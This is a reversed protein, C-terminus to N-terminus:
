KGDSCNVFQISGLLSKKKSFGRKYEEKAWNILNVYEEYVNPYKDRIQKALGSGMVKKCNVQHCIIDEKANLINGEIIKIM